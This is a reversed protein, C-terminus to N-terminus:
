VQGRRNGISPKTIIVIIEPVRLIGDWNRVHHKLTEKAEDPYDKLFRIMENNLRGEMHQLESTKPHKSHVWATLEAYQGRVGGKTFEVFMKDKHLSDYLTHRINKIRCKENHVRLLLTMQCNFMRKKTPNFTGMMIEAWEESSKCSQLTRTTLEEYTLPSHVSVDTGYKNHVSELFQCLAPIAPHTRTHKDTRIDDINEKVRTNHFSGAVGDVEPITLKLKISKYKLHPPLNDIDDMNINDMVDFVDDSTPLLWQVSHLTKSVDGTKAPPNNAGAYPNPPHFLSKPTTTNTTSPTDVM